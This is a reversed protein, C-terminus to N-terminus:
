LIQIELDISKRTLDKSNSLSRKCEHFSAHFNPSERSFTNSTYPSERSFKNSIKATTSIYSDSRRRRHCAVLSLHSAHHSRNTSQILHWTNKRFIGTKTINKQLLSRANLRALRSITGFQGMTPTYSTHIYSWIKTRMKHPCLNSWIVDCSGERRRKHATILLKSLRM